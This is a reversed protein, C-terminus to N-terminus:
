NKRLNGNKDLSPILQEMGAGLKQRVCGGRTMGCISKVGDLLTAKISYFSGVCYSSSIEKLQKEAFM